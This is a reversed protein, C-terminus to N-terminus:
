VRLLSESLQKIFLSAIGWLFPLWLPILFFPETYQWAGRYVAFIEGAPGLVFGVAYFVIDSRTHWKYLIILSIMLYISTLLIPKHWMLGALVVCLCYIGLEFGIKRKM